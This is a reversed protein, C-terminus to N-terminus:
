KMEVRVILAFEFSCTWKNDATGPSTTRAKLLPKLIL